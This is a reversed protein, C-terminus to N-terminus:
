KFFIMGILQLPFDIQFYNSGYCMVSLKLKKGEL